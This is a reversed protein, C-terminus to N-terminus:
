PGFFIPSTWARESQQTNRGGQDAPKCASESALSPDDECDFHSWRWTPAQYVRAYTLARTSGSTAPLPMYRCVVSTENKAPDLVKAPVITTTAKGDAGTRINVFDIHDLPENAKAAQVFLYTNAGAASISGGMPVAGAAVLQSPFSADRCYADAQAETVGKLAYLRVAIKPGSSAFTERRKLAAFLESRSNNGAWVGVIGGPNYASNDKIRESATDDTTALHGRWRTPSGDPGGDSSGEDVNGPSGNHGDTSAVFGLQLPNTGTTTAIELGRALGERVYGPASTEPSGGRGVFNGNPEYYCEPDSQGGDIPACESNGKHQFVEALRQYKSMAAFNSSSSATDWMTGNSANSNHPITLAECAGTCERDLASWVDEIKSYHIYDFPASPVASGNFIVNRHINNNNPQATWEYGILATFSCNTATAANAADQLRKWASTMAVRCAAAGGPGSCLATPDSPSTSILQSAAKLFYPSTALNTRIDVCYSSMYNPHQTDIVCEEEITLFESHDTVVAFDLKQQQDLKVTFPGTGITNTRDGRAFAYADTPTNTNRITYSDLSYSTHVHLDGWFLRKLPDPAPCTGTAASASPGPSPSASGPPAIAAADSTNPLSVKPGEAAGERNSPSSNGCASLLLLAPVVADFRRMRLKM